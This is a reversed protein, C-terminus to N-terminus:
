ANLADDATMDWVLLDQQFEPDNSQATYAEALEQRLRRTKEQWLIKNIFSSRDSALHDVFELVEDDLTISITKSM